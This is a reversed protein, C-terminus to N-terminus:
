LDGLVETLLQPCGADAAAAGDQVVRDRGRVAGLLVQQLQVIPAHHLADANRDVCRLIRLTLLALPQRHADRRLHSCMNTGEHQAAMTNAFHRLPM